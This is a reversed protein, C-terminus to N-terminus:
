REGAPLAIRLSRGTEGKLALRIEALTPKELTLCTSGLFGDLLHVDGSQLLPFKRIQPFRSQAAEPTIHRSIELAEFGPPILGLLPVL